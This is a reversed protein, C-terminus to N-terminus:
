PISFYQELLAMTKTNVQQSLRSRFMTANKERQYELFIPLLREDIGPIADIEDRTATSLHIPVFIFMKLEKIRPGAIGGIKNTFDEITSYKQSDISIAINNTINPIMLLEELSANNPNLRIFMVKYLDELEDKNLFSQLLDNLSKMRLFPRLRKIENVVQNNLHPLRLLVETSAFNPDILQTNQPQNKYEIRVSANIGKILPFILVLVIAFSRLAKMRMECAKKKNFNTM